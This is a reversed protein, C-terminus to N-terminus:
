GDDFNFLATLGQQVILLCSLLIAYELSKTIISIIVNLLLSLFILYFM